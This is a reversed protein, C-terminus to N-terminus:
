LQEAVHGTLDLLRKSYGWENDYRGFVKVLDGHAWAPAADFVCSASDGIVDRFVVPATTVRLIGHLRGDAAEASASRGSEAREPARLLHARGIRGSGNIGVRVTM